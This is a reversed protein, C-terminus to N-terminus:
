GRDLIHHLRDEVTPAESGSCSAPDQTQNLEHASHATKDYLKQIADADYPGYVILLRDENGIETNTISPQDEGNLIFTIKNTDDETLLKQDTKIFESDVNWGLNQFFAGWTVGEDHVHVSDNVNNHM